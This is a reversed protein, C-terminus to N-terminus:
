AYTKLNSLKVATLKNLSLAYIQLTNHTLLVSSITIRSTKKNKKTSKEKMTNLYVLSYTLKIEAHINQTNAFTYTSTQSLLSCKYPCLTLSLTTHMYIYIHCTTPNQSTKATKIYLLPLLSLKNKKLYQVCSYIFTVVIVNWLSNIIQISRTYACQISYIKIQWMTMQLMLSATMQTRSPMIMMHWTM